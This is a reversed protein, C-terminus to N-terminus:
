VAKIIAGFITIVEIYNNLEKCHGALGGKFRHNTKFLTWTVRSTQHHKITPVINVYERIRPDAAQRRVHFRRAPSFPLCVPLM